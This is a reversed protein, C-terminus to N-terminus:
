QVGGKKGKRCGGLNKAVGAAYGDRVGQIALAELEAVHQHRLRRENVYQIHAQIDTELQQLKQQCGTLKKQIVDRAAEAKLLALEQARFAQLSDRFRHAISDLGMVAGIELATMGAAFIFSGTSHNQAVRLAFLGLGIAVGAVLGFWRMFPTPNETGASYLILKTIFGGCLLGLLSACVWALVEDEFPMVQDHFTVAMSIAIVAIAPIQVAKSPADPPPGAKNEAVEAEAAHFANMTHKATTEEEDRDRLLKEFEDTRLRDALDAAPDFLERKADQASARAHEILSAEEKPLAKLTGSELARQEGATFWSHYHALSVAEFPASSQLMRSPLPPAADGSLGKERPPQHGNHQVIQSDKTRFLNM